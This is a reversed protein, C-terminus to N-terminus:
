HDKRIELYLDIGLPEACLTQASDPIGALEALARLEGENRYLLYWNGIWEMYARSTHWPAFNFVLLRGGPALARWLWDLLAAGDATTLYDFLGTCAILDAPAGFREPPKRPLRLLNERAAVIGGAGLPALRREAFELAHPDLDLLTVHTRRREDDGLAELGQAIDAASGSGLSIMRTAGTRARGEAALAEAVLTTRNRVAQPAAQSQFYRDFALGWPLAGDGASPRCDYRVIRELMEYDGAYGHPKFRAHSQLSGWALRRGAAEWLRTSPRRNAEGWCESAALQHLATDLAAHVRSEWAATWDGQADDLKQQELGILEADLERGVEAALRETADM